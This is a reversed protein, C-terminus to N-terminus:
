QPYIVPNIFVFECNQGGIQGESVQMGQRTIFCGRVSAFIETKSKIVGTTSDVSDKVKRMLDITVGEETLLVTNVFDDVSQVTRQLVSADELKNLAKKFEVLYMSCSLQGSWSQAPVESPNLEGIGRVEGRNITENISIDKM